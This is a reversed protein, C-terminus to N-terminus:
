VRIPISQKKQTDFLRIGRDQGLCLSNQFPLAIGFAHPKADELSRLLLKGSMADGPRPDVPDRGLGAGVLAHEIIVDALLVLEIERHQFAGLLLDADLFSAEIQFVEIGGGRDRAQDVEGPVVENAVRFEQRQEIGLVHRPRAM